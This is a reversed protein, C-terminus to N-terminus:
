ASAKKLKDLTEVYKSILDLLKSQEEVDSTSELQKSVNNLKEELLKRVSDANQSSQSTGGSARPVSPVSSAQSETSPLDIANLDDEKTCYVKGKYRIQVSGCRPCPEQLITAGKRVLDATSIIQSNNQTQSM